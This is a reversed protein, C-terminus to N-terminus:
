QGGWHVRGACMDAAQRSCMPSPVGPEKGVPHYTPASPGLPFLHVKYKKM